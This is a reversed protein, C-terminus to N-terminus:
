DDKLECPVNKHMLDGPDESHGAGQCHRIEHRAIVIFRQDVGGNPCSSLDLIITIQCEGLQTTKAYGEFNDLHGRSVKWLSLGEVTLVGEKDAAIQFLKKDRLNLDGINIEDAACGFLLVCCILLIVRFM